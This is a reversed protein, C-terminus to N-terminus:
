VRKAGPIWEIRPALNVDAIKVSLQTPGAIQAPEIAAINKVARTVEERLAECVLDLHICLAGGNNVAYKTVVRHASPMNTGAQEVATSDGSILITPVKMEGALLALIDFEGVPQGFIEYTVRGTYTHPLVANSTGTRAHAGLLVLGSFTEDLMDYGSTPRFGGRIVLVSRPLIEPNINLGNGHFDNVYVEEVGANLAAECVSRVERAYQLKAAEFYASAGMTQESDVVGAVGEMDAVIYLKM